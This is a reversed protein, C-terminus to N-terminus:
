KQAEEYTLPWGEEFDYDEPSESSEMKAKHAEAAAFIAMDAQAAAQFIAAALQQTMDVFEGRMTKWKLGAPVNAGMMLLGM